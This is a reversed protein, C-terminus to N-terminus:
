RRSQTKYKKNDRIKETAPKGVSADKRGLRENERRARRTNGRAVHVWMLHEKHTVSCGIKVHCHVAAYVYRCYETQNDDTPDITQAASFAGDWLLYLIKHGNCITSIEKNTIECDKNQNCEEKLIEGFENFVFSANSIVKKIDHYQQIEVGVLNLVRVMMAGNGANSKKRTSRFDTLKNKLRALLVRGLSAESALTTYAQQLPKLDEKSKKMKEELKKVREQVVVAFPEGTAQVVDM